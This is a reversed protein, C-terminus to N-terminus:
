RRRSLPRARRGPDGQGVRHLDGLRRLRASGPEPHGPTTWTFTEGGPVAFEIRTESQEDYREALANRLGREDTVQWVTVPGTPTDRQVHEIGMFEHQEATLDDSYAREDVMTPSGPGDRYFYDEVQAVPVFGALREARNPSGPVETTYPNHGSLLDLEVEMAASTTRDFQGNPTRGQVSGNAHVLPDSM